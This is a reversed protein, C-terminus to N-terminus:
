VICIKLPKSLLEELMTITNEIDRLCAVGVASHINKIAVCVSTSPVGGRSISMSMADTTGFDSVDLQVPIKKRKAADLLWQNICRNSITSADKVTICPGKGMIKASNRESIYTVDVAVGWDPEIRYTSAKAGYLGLEEQVTFVFYIEKKAKRLRKALEILIFCGVRDDLAKGCIMGGGDLYETTQELVMFTGIGIGAKDLGKKGLEFDVFLDDLEPADKMTYGEEMKSSSVVGIVRKSGNRVAVRQGLLTVPDIGGVLSVYVKGDSSINKGVLGVEDMHAALMVKPSAGKKRAILNGMKDTYVEDVYKKIEKEIMDRVDTESGSVGYANILQELLKNM